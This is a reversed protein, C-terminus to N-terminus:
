ANFRGPNERSMIEQSDPDHSSRASIRGLYAFTGDPDHQLMVVLICRLPRCQCRVAVDARRVEFGQLM